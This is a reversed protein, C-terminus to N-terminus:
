AAHCPTPTVIKQIGTVATSVLDHAQQLQQFGQWLETSLTAILEPNRLQLCAYVIGRVFALESRQEKSWVKSALVSLPQELARRLNNDQVVSRIFDDMQLGHEEGEALPASQARM